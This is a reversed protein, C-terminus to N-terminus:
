IPLHLNNFLSLLRYWLAKRTQTMKNEVFLIFYYHHCDCFYLHQYYIIAVAIVITISITFTLFLLLLLLLFFTPTPTPIFTQCLSIVQNCPLIWLPLNRLVFCFFKFHNWKWFSKNWFFKFYNWKIKLSRNWFFILVPAFKLARYRCYFVCCARM